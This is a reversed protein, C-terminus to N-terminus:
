TKLRWTECQRGKPSVVTQGTREILGLRELPKLHPSVSDRDTRMLNAIQYSALQEYDRLIELILGRVSRANISKAADISTKPDTLRAKPPDFNLSMQTGM